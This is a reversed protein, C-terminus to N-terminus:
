RVLFGGPFGSCDSVIGRSRRWGLGLHGQTFRLGHNALAGPQLVPPAPLLRSRCLRASDTHPSLGARAFAWAGVAVGRTCALLCRGAAPALELPVAQSGSRLHIRLGALRAASGGVSSAGGRVLGCTVWFRPLFCGGGWVGGLAPLLPPSLVRTPIMLRDRDRPETTTRHGRRGPTRSAQAGHRQHRRM